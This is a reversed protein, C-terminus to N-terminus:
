TVSFPIEITSMLFHPTKKLEHLFFQVHLGHLGHLDHPTGTDFTIFAISADRTCTTGDGGTEM